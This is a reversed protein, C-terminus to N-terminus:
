GYFNIGIALLGVLFCYISFIRLNSKEVLKIMWKCAVVGVIFSSILAIMVSPLEQSSISLGDSFVDLILKGFIVPLVMLFSFRAAEKKGVGIILALAITMGSRSIGPMIAIAQACGIIFANRWGIGAGKESFNPTIWLLLATFMLAIGVFWIDGQFISEIQEEFLLGVVLAPFMSLLIEFSLKTNETMKFQFLDTLIALIDKYFVFLISLATGVHVILVMTLDSDVSSSSGMLHNLIEIHGSSSVPLFETLGQIVGLILSRLYESM